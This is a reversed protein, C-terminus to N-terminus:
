KGLESRVEQAWRENLWRALVEAQEQDMVTPASNCKGHFLVARTGKGGQVVCTQVSFPGREREEWVPCGFGCPTTMTERPRLLSGGVYKGVVRGGEELEWAGCEGLVSSYSKQEWRGCSACKGDM